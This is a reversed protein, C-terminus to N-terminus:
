TLTALMARMLKPPPGKKDKEIRVGYRPEEVREVKEEYLVLEGTSLREARVLDRGSSVPEYYDREERYYRDDVTIDYHRDDYDRGHRDHFHAYLAGDGHSHSRSRRHTSHSHSHHHRHRSKSRRRNDVIAVALPEEAVEVAPSGADYVVPAMAMSAPGRSRSRARVLAVSTENFSPMGPGGATTYSRAPSVDRIHINTSNYAAPPEPAPAYQVPAPAYQVPPPPATYYVQQPQYMQPQPPPIPPPQYQVPPPQPVAPTMVVEERRREEEIVTGSSTKVKTTKTEIIDTENKKYDRSLKLVDDINDQGLAVQLVLTNGEKIFPYGLDILVQESVLRAPMRTKGKKPYESKNAVSKNGESRLTVGGSSRTLVSVESASGESSVSPSRHKSRRVWEFEQARERDAALLPAGRRENVVREEVVRDHEHVLSHDRGRREVDYDHEHEHREFSGRRPMPRRRDDIELNDVEIRGPEIRIEEIETRDRGRERERERDARERDLQRDREYREREHEYEAERREASSDRRKRIPLPIPVNVPPRRDDRDDLRDLDYARRAPRRDFTEVSSQRRILRGPRPPPPGGASSGIISDEGDRFRTRERGGANSRRDFDNPIVAPPAPRRRASAPLILSDDDRDDDLYRRERQIFREERRGPPTPSRERLRTPAAPAPAPRRRDDYTLYEDDEEYRSSREDGRRDIRDREYVVRDREYDRRDHDRSM